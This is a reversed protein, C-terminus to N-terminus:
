EWSPERRQKPHDGFNDSKAGTGPVARSLGCFYRIVKGVDTVGSHGQSSDQLTCSGWDGRPLDKTRPGRRAERLLRSRDIGRNINFNSLSLKAHQENGKVGHFLVPFGKKPLVDSLVLHYTIYSNGYDRMRDEYFYRNSWAIINGHSRHNRDLAVIAKGDQTDLGYVEDMLMLRELYSKGLGARAATASKIIPGLENPDGALIVNTYANSFGMIPIMALPEEAEAAEDIVIHSFHGVPVDLARLMSASSCTSLVVRFALLREHGPFLSMVQVDGFIDEEHLSSADLRYLKDSDLGAAALREALLDAAANSPTCVLVRVGADRRVLQVVSEVVTSTKGTGPPGYIIFPVSGPPQELISIVAQLQQGDDRIDRNVLQRFKLKDIEARSLRRMPKIDSVSPFLLRRPPALAATLSHYQRRLKSRNHRFRLEFRSGKYLNFDTPLRLSVKLVALHHRIFVDVNTVRAEYRIDDHIDDLWLFDGLAVEPLLDEDNNEIQISYLHDCRQLDVEYTPQRKVDWQQHGDEVALLANFYHAYTSM